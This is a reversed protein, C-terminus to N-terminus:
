LRDAGTGSPVFGVPATSFHFVIGDVSPAVDDWAEAANGHGANTELVARLAERFLRIQQAEEETLTVDVGWESAWREIASAPAFDERRESFEVTNLFKEVFELGPPTTTLQDSVRM